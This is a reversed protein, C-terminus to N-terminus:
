SVGECSAGMAAEPLSWVMFCVLGHLAAMWRFAWWVLRELLFSSVGQHSECVVGREANSSPALLTEGQKYFGSTSRGKITPIRPNLTVRSRGHM